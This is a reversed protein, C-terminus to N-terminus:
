ILFILFLIFINFLLIFNGMKGKARGDLFVIRINKYLDEKNQYVLELTNFSSFLENIAHFLNFYEIRPVLVIIKEEWGTEECTEKQEQFELFHDKNRLCLSDIIERISIFKIKPFIINKKKFNCGVNEKTIFRFSGPKIVPIELDSNRGIVEEVEEGGKSVEILDSNIMVNEAVFYTGLDKRAIVTDRHSGVMLAGDSSKFLNMSVYQDECIDNNTNSKIKSVVIIKGKPSIPIKQNRGGVRKLIQHDNQTYKEIIKRIKIGKESKKEFGKKKITKINKRNNKNQNNFSNKVKNQQNLNEKKMEIGKKIMQNTFLFNVSILFFVFLLFSILLTKQKM